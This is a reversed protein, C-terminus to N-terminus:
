HEYVWEKLYYKNVITAVREDKLTDEIDYVDLDKHYEKIVYKLNDLVCECAEDRTMDKARVYARQMRVDLKIVEENFLLWEALEYEM